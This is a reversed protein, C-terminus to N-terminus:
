RSYRTWRTYDLIDVEDLNDLEDLIGIMEYLRDGGRRKKREVWSGERRLQFAGDLEGGM